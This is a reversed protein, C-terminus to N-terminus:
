ATSTSVRGRYAPRIAMSRWAHSRRAPLGCWHWVGESGYRGRTDQAVFAYGHSAYYTGSSKCGNKNYPRRELITPLKQDLVDGDEVPLYIDTALKVGDRMPVMVNKRVEVAYPGGAAFASSTILLCFLFGSVTLRLQSRFVFRSIM